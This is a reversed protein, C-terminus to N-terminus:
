KGELLVMKGAGNMKFSTYTGSSECAISLPVAGKQVIRAALSGDQPRVDYYADADESMRATPPTNETRFHVVLRDNSAVLEAFRYGEPIQIPVERVGGGQSVEVVPDNGNARWVVINKGVATFFVSGLYMKAEQQRDPDASISGALTPMRSAPVDIRKVVEGSPTLYQVRLTSTVNDSDTVLMDGNPFVALHTVDCRGPLTMDCGLDLQTAGKYSGDMDFRAVFSRFSERSVKAAPKGPGSEEPKEKTGALLFYVGSDTPFIDHVYFDTLDSINTSLITRAQKGRVITVIDDYKSLTGEKLKKQMADWDVWRLVISGDTLCHPYDITGFPLNFDSVTETAKFEVNRAPVPLQGDNGSASEQIAALAQAQAGAFLINFVSAWLAFGFCRM